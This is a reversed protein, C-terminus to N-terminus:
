LPLRPSQADLRAMLCDPCLDAGRETENGCEEDWGPCTTPIEPKSNRQTM